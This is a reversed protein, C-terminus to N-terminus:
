VIPNCADCAHSAHAHSALILTSLAARIGHYRMYRITKLAHVHCHELDRIHNCCSAHSLLVMCAAQMTSAQSVLQSFIGMTMLGHQSAVDHGPRLKSLYVVHM